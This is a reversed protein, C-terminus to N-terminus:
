KAFRFHLQAAKMMALNQNLEEALATPINSIQFIPLFAKMNEVATRLLELRKATAKESQDAMIKEWEQMVKVFDKMVHDETPAEVGSSALNVLFRAMIIDMHQNAQRINFDLMSEVLEKQASEAQALYASCQRRKRKKLQDQANELAHRCVAFKGIVEPDSTSEAIPETATLTQSLENIRERNKNKSLCSVSM